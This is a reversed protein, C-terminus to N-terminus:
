RGESVLAGEMARPPAKFLYECKNRVKHEKEYFQGWFKILKLGWL